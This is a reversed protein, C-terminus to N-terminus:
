RLRRELFEYARARAEDPFDHGCDPHMVVVSRFPTRARVKAVVAVVSQWRFNGDGRPANVFIECPASAAIVADFDFPLDQLRDRFAVLKPMYRESTWGRGTEWVRPNGGHHDRFSDFGCSTVLASIRPDFAATFLANHGGLSHGIAGYKGRTVFPLTELVDLARVNDWVAKMTGSEYKLGALDPQYDALLPYAPCIVTSGRRVLELGYARHGRGAVGIVVKHGLRHDEPHLCLIGAVPRAGAGSARKPILLYAPVRSGPESQYSILRRVHDDCDMEQEVRVELKCRKAEGPFAGMVQEM